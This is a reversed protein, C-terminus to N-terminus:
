YEPNIVTVNGEGAIAEAAAKDTFFLFGFASFAFETMASYDKGNDPIRYLQGENHQM